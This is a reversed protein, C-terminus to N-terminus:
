VSLYAGKLSLRKDVSAAYREPMSSGPAWGAFDSLSRWSVGGERLAIVGGVKGSHLGFGAPEIGCARLSNLFALRCSAYSAEEGSYHKFDGNRLLDLRPLAFHSKSFGIKRLKKFYIRTIWSVCTLSGSAEIAVSHGRGVQDNKRFRFFVSM